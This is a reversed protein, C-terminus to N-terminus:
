SGRTAPWTDAAAHCHLLDLSIQSSGDALQWGHALGGNCAPDIGLMGHIELVVQHECANALASAFQLLGM